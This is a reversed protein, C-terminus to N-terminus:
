TTMEVDMEAIRPMSERRATEWCYSLKKNVIALAATLSYVHTYQEGQNCQSGYINSQCRECAFGSFGAQVSAADVDNLFDEAILYQPCLYMDCHRGFYAPMRAYQLLECGPPPQARCTPGIKELKIVM